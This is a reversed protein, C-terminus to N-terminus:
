KLRKKGKSLPVENETLDITEEASEIEKRKQGKKKGMKEKDETGMAKELAPIFLQFFHDTTAYVRVTAQDDLETSQLNIIIRNKSLLPLNSAPYVSLSSGLCFCIDANQCHVEAREYGGCVRDHLHDKFNVITDKLKGKCSKNECLRGTYHNLGCLSCKRYWDEEYCNTSYLDVCYDREYEVFCKECYEIFVNGHLDSIMNRNIGSKTHLNDCNQTICYNLKNYQSLKFLSYHTLTPQLKTYDVDDEDEEDDEENSEKKEKTMDIVESQKASPKSSTALSSLTDIGDAGRYTALGASASVGAGTFAVIKNTPLVLQVVESVIRLLTEHTDFKEIYEEIEALIKQEASVLSKRAKLIDEWCDFHVYDVTKQLNWKLQFQKLSKSSLRALKKTPITIRGGVQNEEIKNSCIICVQNDCLRVIPADM